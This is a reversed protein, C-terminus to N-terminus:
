CVFVNRNEAANGYMIVFLLLLKLSCMEQTTRYSPYAGANLLYLM